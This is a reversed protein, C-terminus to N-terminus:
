AQLAPGATTVGEYHWGQSDPDSFIEVICNACATGSVGNDRFNTSVPATLM